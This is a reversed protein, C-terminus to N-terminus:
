MPMASARGWTRSRSSSRAPRPAVPRRRCTPAWTCWGPAAPAWPWAAGPPEPATPSCWTPRPWRPPWTRAAPMRGRCTTATCRSSWRCGPPSGASRTAPRFPTTPTILAYPFRGRVRRLARGLFPAAWAGWSGYSVPRPPSLYRVYRVPIGDLEAAAPQRLPAMAARPDRARLASLPPIPRHLALVRVEAGARRTALAQRHAWVGLVPDAARPYYESVVLARIGTPAPHGAPAPIDDGPHVPRWDDCDLDDVIPGAGIQLAAQGGHHRVHGGVSERVLDVQELVGGALRKVIEGAAEGGASHEARRGIEAEAAAVVQQRGAGGGGVQQDEVRVHLQEGGRADRAKQPHQRAIPRDLHDPRPQDAGVPAGLGVVVATQVAQPRLQRQAAAVAVPPRGIGALLHGPHRPRRQQDLVRREIQHASKVLAQEEVLLVLVQAQADAPRAPPHEVFGAHGDAMVARHNALAPLPELEGGGVEELLVAQVPARMAQCPGGMPAQGIQPASRASWRRRSALPQGPQLRPLRSAAGCVAARRDVPADGGGAASARPRPSAERRTGGAAARGREGDRRAGPTPPGARRGAHPGCRLRRHLGGPPARRDGAM